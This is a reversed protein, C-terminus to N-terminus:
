EVEQRTPVERAEDEGDLLRLVAAERGLRAAIMLATFGEKDYANLTAANLQLLKDIM